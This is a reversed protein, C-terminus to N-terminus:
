STFISPCRYIVSSSYRMISRLCPRPLIARRCYARGVIFIAMALSVPQELSRAIEVAETAVVVSEDFHGVMALSGALSQRAHVNPIQVQGFREGIMAGRLSAIAKRFLVIAERYQGLANANHGLNIDRITQIGIDRCTLAEREADMARRHDGTMFAILLLFNAIQGLRIPDNLTTALQQAERLVEMIRAFDGSPLLATRLELRIDVAREISERSQPLHNLAVLAQEFFAQAERYASRQVDRNGARHLYRAAEDWLDGRVAHHALRDVQEDLRDAYLREIVTVIRAHLDRRREQLVSGYTVDHTLAHKFTYELEPFPTEYLFESAQLRTLGDRLEAEPLEAVAQLLAFPVDRGIASAAQLLRKDNSSLRDIRAAL